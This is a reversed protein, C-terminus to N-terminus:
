KFFDLLSTQKASANRPQPSETLQVNPYNANYQVYTCVYMCAHIVPALYEAAGLLYCKQRGKERVLQCDINIYPKIRFHSAGFTRMYQRQKRAPGAYLCVYM